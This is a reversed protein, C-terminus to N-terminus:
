MPTFHKKGNRDLVPVTEYINVQCCFELDDQRDIELLRQGSWSDKFASLSDAYKQSLQILAESTPNLQLPLNQQHALSIIEKVIHGACFADDLVFQGKDGACVLALGSDQKRALDLATQACSRANLLAAALLIRSDALAEIVRTGNTTTLIVGQDKVRSKDELVECPSNGMAFGPLKLGDREGSLIMGTKKHLKLAEKEERLIYVAKCGHELLTVITSSARLVDIVMVVRNKWEALFADPTVAVDVEIARMIAGM